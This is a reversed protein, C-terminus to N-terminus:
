RAATMLDARGQRWASLLAAPAVSRGLETDPPAAGGTVAELHQAFASADTMALRAKDDYFALHSIQDRVSWGVAPTPTTWAGDDIGAVREDLAAHEAELDNCIAAIRDAAADAM